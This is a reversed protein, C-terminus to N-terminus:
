PVPIPTEHPLLVRSARLYGYPTENRFNSVRSTYVDAHKEVQRAFLSKDIGARMLPGWALNGQESATRALPAIHDDLEAIQVAISDIKDDITQRPQNSVVLRRRKLRLRSQAFELKSKQTM